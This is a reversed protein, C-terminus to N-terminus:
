TSAPGGIGGKSMARIYRSFRYGKYICVIALGFVVLGFLLVVPLLIALLPESRIADGAQRAFYVLSPVTALLFAASAFLQLWGRRVRARALNHLVVFPRDYGTPMTEVGNPDVFVAYRCHRRLAAACAAEHGDLYFRRRRGRVQLEIGPRAPTIQWKANLRIVEVDDCAFREEAPGHGLRITPPTIELSSQFRTRISHWGTITLLLALAIGIGYPLAPANEGFWQQGAAIAMWGVLVAGSLLLAVYATGVLYRV